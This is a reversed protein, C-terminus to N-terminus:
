KGIGKIIAESFRPPIAEGIVARVFTDTINEPLEWDAPLSSVIFLERMTLVRADSYTGDALLRGPHGNNPGGMNGSQITRAPCPEDWRMRAFTNHFGKMREGNAKKPYHVPNLFASKGEPTHRMAEIDRENHVKSYHWKIGSDQGSELSPLSGIAEELTVIPTHPPFEWKIQKDKRVLLYINRLRMQPISYYMAKVKTTKNFNYDGGLEKELYEPILMDKGDVVIRTKLITTVNEILVFEPKIRKVVDVAYYILQNRVDYKDMKGVRSMGQCPPTAMVFNVDKAIAEEIIQTRLNDDTIDGCIM